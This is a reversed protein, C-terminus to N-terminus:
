GATARRGGAVAPPLPLNMRTLQDQTGRIASTQHGPLLYERHSVGPASRTGRRKCARLPVSRGGVAVSAAAPVVEAAGAALVVAEQGAVGSAPSASPRSGGNAWTGRLGFAARAALRGADYAGAVLLDGAFRCSGPPPGDPGADRLDARGAAGAVREGARIRPHPCPAAIVPRGGDVSDGLRPSLGEASGQRTRVAIWSAMDACRCRAEPRSAM